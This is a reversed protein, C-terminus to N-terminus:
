VVPANITIIYQVTDQSKRLVTGRKRRDRVARHKITGISSSAIIEDTEM